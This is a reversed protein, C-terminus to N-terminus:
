EMESSREFEGNRKLFVVVVSDRRLLFSQDGKLDQSSNYTLVAQPFFFELFIQSNSILLKFRLCLYM